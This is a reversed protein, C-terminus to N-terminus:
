KYPDYQFHYMKLIEFELKNSTYLFVISKQVDIKYGIIESHDSIVIIGIM